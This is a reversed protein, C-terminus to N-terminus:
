AARRAGGAPAVGALTYIDRRRGDERAGAMKQCTLCWSSPVFSAVGDCVIRRVVVPRGCVRKEWISDADWDGLPWTCQKGMERDKLLIGDNPEEAQAALTAEIAAQEAAAAARRAEQQQAKGISAPAPATEAKQRPPRPARPVRPEAKTEARAAEMSRFTVGTRFARGLLASRSRSTGFIDAMLTTVVSPALGQGASRRLFDDEEESWAQKESVGM